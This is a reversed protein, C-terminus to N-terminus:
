IKVLRVRPSNDLNGALPEITEEDASVLQNFQAGEKAIPNMQLGLRGFNGAIGVVEPHVLDTLHVKGETTFGWQSEIRVKQGEALGAKAAAARNVLVVKLDPVFKDAIEQLWPNEANGYTGNVLFHTKWNAVKFPFESTVGYNAPEYWISFGSYHRMLDDLDWGPVKANAKELNAKLTKGNQILRQYYIPQRIQNEPAYSYNYTEKVTKLRYPKFASKEFDAFSANPGFDSKIKREVIEDWTYVKAPDLEYEKSLGPPMSKDVATLLSGNARKNLDALFGARNALQICIDNYNMTNFTRSVAPRKIFTGMLGRNKDNCEKENRFLRYMNTRELSHDEPMIIDSIQTIEDFHYSITYIFPIKALAQLAQARNSNSIVPNGAHVMMAKIPYKIYYKDPDIIAKWAMGPTSHHMPYFTEMDLRDPPFKFPSGMVQNAMSSTAKLVGDEDAQLFNWWTNNSCGQMGGPVDINGLLVNVTGLAKYAQTGLRNTVSGRGIDVCAPRYPFKYGDIEITSGIRAETVLNNAIERIKAAPITTVKSAWEPTFQAVYDKLLQFAPKVTQGSVQYSGTLAYTEGKSSDFPVAQNKATDWVLPKKTAPDRVYDETFVRTGKIEQKTDPILYPGNTRVKVWWEDFKGIEYLITNVLALGFATDSGPRIPVWEGNQAARDSRPDVNVVKMGRDVADAFNTSSSSAIAFDPGFSRGIIVVYNCRELDIRDLMQGSLHLATFHEPCLPGSSGLSNPTGTAADFPLRTEEFGFGRFFIFSRPDTDRADKVKAACTALAEDWSIEVWKPDDELKRSPNTRKMPAKVRYPNYLSNIVALGRPCLRGENTDSAPDGMVGIAVGNSVTVLNACTPQHCGSCFSAKVETNPTAAAETTRVLAGIQGGSLKDSVAVVAAMAVTTKLFQRRSLSRAVINGVM